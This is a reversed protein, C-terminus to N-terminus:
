VSNWRTRQSRCYNQHYSTPSGFRWNPLGNTMSSSPTSRHQLKFELQGSYLYRVNHPLQITQLSLKSRWAGQPAFGLLEADIKRTRRAMVIPDSSLGRLM